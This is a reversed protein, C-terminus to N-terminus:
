GGQVRDEGVESQKEGKGRRMGESEKWGRREEKM